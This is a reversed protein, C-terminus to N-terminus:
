VQDNQQKSCHQKSALDHLLAQAAIFKERLMVNYEYLSKLNKQVDCMDMESGDKLELSPPPPIIDNTISFPKPQSSDGKSLGDCRQKGNITSGLVEHKLPKQLFRHRISHYSPKPSFSVHAFPQNGSVSFSGDLGPATGTISSNAREIHFTEPAATQNSISPLTAKRSLFISDKRSPQRKNHTSGKRSSQMTLGTCSSGGKTYDFDEELKSCGWTYMVYKRLKEWRELAKRRNRIRQMISDENRLKKVRYECQVLLYFFIGVSICYLGGLDALFSVPGMISQNEIEVVYASLFNVYLTTNLIGDNSSELSRQLQTTDHFLSGPVFEHFLPQVLKLHNLNNYIRPFLNFKLINTDGGRFTVPRGDFVSGNLLTGSVYSVHKRDNQDKSTVNFQFGVAAAPYNPLDVFQWSIYLNDQIPMCRSCRLSIRPGISTNQCLYSGFKSLPVARYDIFGPNGTVLTGLDRLNSCSMSSITTINFEMDNAFAALDPSNTAKVNHVEITRKSIIQYLLAAFLGVFVIWSAISFAGGLETKRKKVVAQDDLWHRTAFTIDLRSIWWRLRFWISRGDDGLKMFRLFLCLALWSALMILTAELFVAQSQTFKKISDFEFITEPFSLTNYVVGSDTAITSNTSFLTCSNATRNLLRGVPCACQTGNYVIGNPPCSM